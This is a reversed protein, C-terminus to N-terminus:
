FRLSVACRGPEVDLYARAQAPRHLFRLWIGAAVLAEGTFLSAASLRDDRAARDYLASIRAPDTADLYEDYSRNARETLVFSLGVLGAGTALSLYAWRHSRPAAGRSTVVEFPDAAQAPACAAPRPLQALLSAVLLTAVFRTM